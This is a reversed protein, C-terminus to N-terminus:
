PVRGLDAERPRAVTLDVVREVDHGEGLETADTGTLVVDLPANLSAVVPPCGETGKAALQGVDHEFRHEGLFSCAIRVRRVVGEWGRSSM